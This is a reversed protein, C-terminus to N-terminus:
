FLTVWLWCVQTVNLCSCLWFSLFSTPSALHNLSYLELRVVQTGDESGLTSSSFLSGSEQEDDEICAGYV